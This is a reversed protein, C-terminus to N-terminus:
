VPKTPIGFLMAYVLATAIRLGLIFIIAGVYPWEFAAKV